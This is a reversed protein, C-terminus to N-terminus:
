EYKKGYFVMESFSWTHSSSRTNHLRLCNCRIPDFATDIGQRNTIVANKWVVGNDESYEIELSYPYETGYSGQYFTLGYLEYTGNLSLVIQDRDNQPASNTWETTYDGDVVSEITKENVNASIKSVIASGPLENERTRQFVTAIKMQDVMIHKVPQYFPFQFNNGIVHHYNLVIYKAPENNGVSSIKLRDRKDKPLSWYVVATGADHDWVTIKLDPDVETIFELCEKTSLAYYDREFLNQANDRVLQNFYVMEWPHNKIMWTCTNTFSCLLAVCVGAQLISKNQHLLWEVGLIIFYVVATYIFYFHRWGNYLSSQMLIALAIPFFFVAFFVMDAAKDCYRSDMKRVWRTISIVVGFPFLVLYLIPTTVGIWVFLYHWPLSDISWYKGLYIIINDAAISYDSFVTLAEVAYRLPNSWAAPTIIFFVVAFLIIQILCGILMRTWNKKRFGEDLLLYMCCFILLIGGILRLNAAIATSVALILFCVKKRKYIFETLFFLSIAFWSFFVADKINYFSDAFLRPMLLLLFLSLIADRWRGFRRLILFFLCVAAAFFQIFTWIHRLLFVTSIDIKYHFLFEILAIPFQLFTGYYKESYSNLDPLGSVGEPVGEEAIRGGLVSNLAITTHERESVEDYSLGYDKCILLGLLFYSFFLILSIWKGSKEVWNATSKLMPQIRDSKKGNTWKDFTCFCPIRSIWHTKVVM